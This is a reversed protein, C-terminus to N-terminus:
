RASASSSWRCPSGAATAAAPTLGNQTVAAAPRAGGQRGRDRRAARSRARLRGRLRGFWGARDARPPRRARSARALHSRDDSSRAHRLFRRARGRSRGASGRHRRALASLGALVACLDRRLRDEMGVRHRREQADVATDLARALPGELPCYPLLVLKPLQPHHALHDFWTAVVAEGQECDVLPAGLPAFPHTWGVLVPLPVGYRRREIRAPFLGLLRRESSQSWVLGAGVDRGFVEQAALAFAPEYFVNPELSRSALARWESGLAALEALPRWEVRFRSEITGHV